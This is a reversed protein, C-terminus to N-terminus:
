PQPVHPVVGAWSEGKQNCHLENLLIMHALKLPIMHVGDTEPDAFLAPAVLVLCAPNEPTINEGETEVTRIAMLSATIGGMSHGLFLYRPNAASRSKLDSLLRSGIRDLSM